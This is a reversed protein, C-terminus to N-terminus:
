GHGDDGRLVGSLTWGSSQFWADSIKSEDDVFGRESVVNVTAVQMEAAQVGRYARRM